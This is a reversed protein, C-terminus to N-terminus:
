LTRFSVGHFERGERQEADEAGEGEGADLITGEDRVPVRAGRRAGRAHFHSAHAVLPEIASDPLGARTFHTYDLTLTLGPVNQVLASIVHRM